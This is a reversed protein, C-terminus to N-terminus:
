HDHKAKRKLQTQNSHTKNAAQVSYRHVDGAGGRHGGDYECEVRLDNPEVYYEVLDIAHHAQSDFNTEGQPKVYEEHAYSIDEEMLQQFQIMVQQFQIMYHWEQFLTKIICYHNHLM